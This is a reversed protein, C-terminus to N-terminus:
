AAQDPIQVDLELAPLEVETGRDIDELFELGKSPTIQENGVLRLVHLLDDHHCKVWVKHGSERRLRSIFSM